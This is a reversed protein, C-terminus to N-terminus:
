KSRGHNQHFDLQIEAQKRVFTADELSTFCGLHQYKGKSYISAVWKNLPTNWTVGTVGSTNARSKASNKSNETASVQRLNKWRNDTPDGNIHDVLMSPFAGTMYLFALRHALYYRGKLGIQVYGASLTRGAETGVQIRHAQKPKKLWVFKGTEPFYQLMEKLHHQTIEKHM